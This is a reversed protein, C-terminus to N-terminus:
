GFAAPHLAEALLRLGEVVRPGPRSVLDSDVLVVRGGAVADIADFGPRRGVAKVSVGSESSVLYVAPAEDVVDEVSWEPYDGEASASVSRCGARDLLDAIFTNPGITILPPYYVEFFCPVEPESEVRATVAGAQALMDSALREAAAVAGTLRGVVEIDNLLDDLDTANITFVPMGLDRLREKWEDGGSIALLLDPQLAVVKEINPDVGFDGAGGIEEIQKAAPPYDDYAGSVGVLRDGLGLAFVIETNSPAFTVIRQPAVDLTVEIGDDDILTVPFNAAPSLTPPGGAAPGAAEACGAGLLAVVLLVKPLCRSPTM